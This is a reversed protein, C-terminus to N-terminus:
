NYTNINNIKHIIEKRMDKTDIVQTKCYSNLIQDDLDYVFIEHTFTLNKCENPCFEGCAFDDEIQEWNAKNNSSSNESIKLFEVIIFDDTVEHRMFHEKHLVYKSKAFIKKLVKKSISTKGLNFYYGSEIKLGYNFHVKIIDDLIYKDFRNESECILNITYSFDEQHEEDPIQKVLTDGDKKISNIIENKNIIDEFAYNEDVEYFITKTVSTADTKIYDEYDNFLKIQNLISNPYYVEFKNVDNQQIEIQYGRKFEKSERNKYRFNDQKEIDFIIRGNWNPTLKM